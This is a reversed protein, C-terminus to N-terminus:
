VSWNSSAMKRGPIFQLAALLGALSIGDEGAHGIFLDLNGTVKTWNRNQFSYHSSGYGM